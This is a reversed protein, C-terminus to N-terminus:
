LVTCLTSSHDNLKEPKVVPTNKTYPLIEKRIYNKIENVKMSKTKKNLLFLNVNNFNEQTVSSYEEAQSHHKNSEIIGNAIGIERLINKYKDLDNYFKPLKICNVRSLRKVRSLEDLCLKGSMLLVFDVEDLSELIDIAGEFYAQDRLFM